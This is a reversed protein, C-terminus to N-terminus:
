GFGDQEEDDLYNLNLTVFPNDNTASVIGITGFRQIVAAKAFGLDQIANARIQNLRLSDGESSIDFTSGLDRVVQVMVRYELQVRMDQDAEPTAGAWVPIVADPVGLHRLADDMQTGLGEPTDAAVRGTTDLYEGYRQEIYTAAGARDM